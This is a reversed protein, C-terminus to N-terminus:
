EAKPKLTKTSSGEAPSANLYDDQMNYIYKYIHIHM